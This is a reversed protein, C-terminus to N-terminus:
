LNVGFKRWDIQPYAVHHANYNGTVVLNLLSHSIVVFANARRFTRCFVGIEKGLRTPSAPQGHTRALM